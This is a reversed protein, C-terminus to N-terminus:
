RENFMLDLGYKIYREFKQDCSVLTAKDSIAQAVILRDNPDRHDVFLPLNAYQRFHKETPPVLFISLEDLLDVVDQPHGILDGKKGSQVKGIQCLHILEHLCVTSTWLTNSYDELAERVTHSLGEGKKLLLFYLTNTDLYLRM